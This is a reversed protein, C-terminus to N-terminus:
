DISCVALEILPQQDNELRDGTEGYAPLRTLTKAHYWGVALTYDQGSVGQPIALEAHHPVRDGPEWIFTPYYGSHPLSDDQAVLEGQENVLHVFVKYDEDMRGLCEWGLSIKAPQSDEICNPLRLDTLAITDGFTALPAKDTEIGAEGSSDYARLRGFLLYNGSDGSGEIPVHEAETREYVDLKLQMLSPTVLDKGVPISYHDAFAVGPTWMSTPFAGQGAYSRVAGKLALKADLLQLDITYDKDVDRLARWFLTVEAEQGPVIPDTDVSYGVLEVEKGFRHNIRNPISEVKEQACAKPQAYAPLIYRHLSTCSTILLYLSIASLLYPRWRRTAITSFGIALSLALIPVLSLFFRGPLASWDLVLILYSAQLFAFLVFLSLSFLVWRQNENAKKCVWYAFGLFGVLTIALFGWYYPASLSINGWGFCAWFSNFADRYTGPLDGWRWNRFPRSYEELRNPQVLSIIAIRIRERWPKWAILPITASGLLLGLGVLPTALRGHGKTKIRLNAIILGSVVTPLLPLTANESLFALLTALALKLMRATSYGRTILRTLLLNGLTCLMIGMVDNNVISSMFVFSPTFGIIALTALQIEKRRPLLEVSILYALLCTTAGMAVSLLRVLHYALPTGRFPWKELPSHVFANQGGDPNGFYPNPKLIPTPSLNFLSVLPAATLYYLPPYRYPIEEYTASSAGSNPLQGQSALHRIYGFHRPEDYGEGLPIAFSYSLSLLIHAVLLTIVIHKHEIRDLLHHVTKM